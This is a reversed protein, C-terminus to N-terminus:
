AMLFDEPSVWVQSGFGAVLRIREIELRFFRFDKFTAYVTASPHAAVFAARADEAGVLPVCRGVLSMRPTDLPETSAADACVLLSARADTAVNKTHEALSSLLLIPRLRRDWAVLVLSAYPAGGLEGAGITALAATRAGRALARCSEVPDVM